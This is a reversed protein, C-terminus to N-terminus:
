NSQEDWHGDELYVYARMSVFCQKLVAFHTYAIHRDVTALKFIINLEDDLGLLRSGGLQVMELASVAYFRM